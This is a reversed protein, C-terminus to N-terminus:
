LDLEYLYEKKKKKKMRDHTFKEREVKQMFTRNNTPSVNHM